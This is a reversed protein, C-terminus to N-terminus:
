LTAHWHVRLLVQFPSSTGQPQIWYVGNQRIGRQQRLQKCSPAPYQRSTMYGTVGVWENGNCVQVTYTCVMVYVCACCVSAFYDGRRCPPSAQMSLLHSVPRVELSQRDHNWRLTGESAGTCPGSTFPVQVEAAPAGRSVRVSALLFVTVSIYFRCWTLSFMTRALPLSCCSLCCSGSYVLQQLVNVHRTDTNDLLLLYRVPVGVRM